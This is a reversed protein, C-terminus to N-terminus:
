KNRGYKRRVTEVAEKPKKAVNNIIAVIEDVSRLFKEKFTLDKNSWTRYLSLFHLLM